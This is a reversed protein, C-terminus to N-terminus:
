GGPAVVVRAPDVRYADVIRDRTFSSPTVVAASRRISWRVTAKLRLVTRRPFVDPLDEFVIDHVATVVPVTTLPPAVYQVHLLDVRDHAARVPVEVTIPLQPMRLKPVGM